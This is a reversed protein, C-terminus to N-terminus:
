CQGVDGLTIEYKRPVRPTKGVDKSMNKVNDDDRL